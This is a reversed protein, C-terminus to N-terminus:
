RPGRAQQVLWLLARAEPNDPDLRVAEDLQDAAEDLLGQRYLIL